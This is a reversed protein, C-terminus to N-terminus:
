SHCLVFCKCKYCKNLGKNVEFDSQVFSIKLSFLLPFHKHFYILRIVISYHLLIINTNM